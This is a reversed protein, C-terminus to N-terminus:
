KMLPIVTLVKDYESIYNNFGGKGHKSTKSIDSILDSLIETCRLFQSRVERPRAESANIEWNEGM